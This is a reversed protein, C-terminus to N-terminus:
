SLRGLNEDGIAALNASMEADILTSETEIIRKVAGLSGDISAERAAM